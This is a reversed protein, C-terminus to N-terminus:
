DQMNATDEAMVAVATFDPVATSVEETFATLAVATSVEAAFVEATSGTTM